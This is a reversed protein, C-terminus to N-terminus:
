KKSFFIEQLTELAEFIRPGPRTFIDANIIIVANNKVATINQWGRRNMVADTSPYMDNPLLIFDPDSAIITEESVVPYAQDIDGFINKGGCISIVDNIFSNKGASMFPANYVEWFVDPKDKGSKKINESIKAVIKKYKKELSDGTSKYGTLYAIDKIEDIVDAITAANSVYYPIHFKEFSPILFDHMGSYIIIFDPKFSLIKELSITKADFGGITPLKKAQEPYNSVDSVAAIQKGAGVEYLIETSAAGLSIIKVPKQKLTVEHGTKDKVTVPFPKASVPLGLLVVFIFIIGHKFFFRNM